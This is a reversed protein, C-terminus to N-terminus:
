PTSPALREILQIIVAQQQQVIEFLTSIRYEAIQQGWESPDDVSPLEDILETLTKM